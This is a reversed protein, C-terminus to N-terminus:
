YNISTTKYLVVFCPLVARPNFVVLEQLSSYVGTFGGAVSDYSGAATGEPLQMGEVPSAGSDAARRVRGAIVRCVLMARRGDTSDLGGHAGGSTATTRVGGKGPFGHRIITCVGCGPVFGCLSASGRAGLACTLTTCHFRLLEDGDAAPRPNKRATTLARLKVADRCDEFRQITRKTNRVKLIRENECTPGDNKLWSSRWSTGVRTKQVYSQFQGCVIFFM